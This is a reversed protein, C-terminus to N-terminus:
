YAKIKKQCSYSLGDVYDFVFNISTTNNELAEQYNTLLSKCLEQITEDTEEYIMKKTKVGYISLDTKM